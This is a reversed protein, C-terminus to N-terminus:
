KWVGPSVKESTFASIIPRLPTVKTETKPVRQAKLLFFIRLYNVISTGEALYCKCVTKIWILGSM